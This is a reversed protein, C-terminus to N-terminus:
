DEETAIGIIRDFELDRTDTDVFEWVLRDTGEFNFEIISGSTPKEIFQVTDLNVPANNRPATGHFDCVIFKAM